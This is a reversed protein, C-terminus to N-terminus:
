ASESVPLTLPRTQRTRQAGPPRHLSASPLEGFLTNYEGSFRGLEWFGHDMAISAVTTKQSSASVLARRTLHMRRLWLYRGPSMGLHEHCCRRLTRELVGIARCIEGLYLPRDQNEALFDEFRALIRAHERASSGLEAVTNDTLCQIMAHVLTEELSRAVEPHVLVDPAVEALQGVTTHLKLLQGM